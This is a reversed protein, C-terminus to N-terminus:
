RMRRRACTTRGPRPSRGAREVRRRREDHRRRGVARGESGRLTRGNGTEIRAESTRSGPDFPIFATVRADALLPSPRQASAQRIAADVADLSGDASAVAAYALVDSESLQPSALRVAQVRVTNATLTGTKDVCLVDVAAAEHLASLRTLLVGECALQQAGLAGALTFTAPLAVPISALVATLVLPLTHGLPMGDMHVYVVLAEVVAANFVALNRVVTVVARQETSESSAIKVLEATRGFYTRSGTATVVGTASGRRVLAGAYAQSGAGAEIPVSEGTLM